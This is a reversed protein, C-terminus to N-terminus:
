TITVTVIYVSSEMAAPMRWVRQGARRSFSVRSLGSCGGRHRGCDRQRM